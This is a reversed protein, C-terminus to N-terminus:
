RLHGGVVVVQSAAMDLALAAVALSLHSTRRVDLWLVSLPRHGRRIPRGCRAGALPGQHPGRRGRPQSADQRSWPTPGDPGRPPTGRSRAARDVLRHGRRRAGHGSRRQGPAPRRARRRGGCGSCGVSGGSRPLLLTLCDPRIGTWGVVAAAVCGLAEVDGVRRRRVEM